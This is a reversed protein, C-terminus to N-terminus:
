ERRVEEPDLVDLGPSSLVEAQGLKFTDVQREQPVGAEAIPTGQGEAVGPAVETSQHRRLRAM